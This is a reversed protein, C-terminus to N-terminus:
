PEGKAAVLPQRVLRSEALHKGIRTAAAIAREGDEESFRLTCVCPKPHSDCFFVATQCYCSIAQFPYYALRKALMLGCEATEINDDHIVLARLAHTIELEESAERSM